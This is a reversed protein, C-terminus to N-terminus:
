FESEWYSSMILIRCSKCLCPQFENILEKNLYTSYGSINAPSQKSNQKVCISSIHVFIPHVSKAPGSQLSTLLHYGLPSSHSLPQVYQASLAVSVFTHIMSLKQCKFYSLCAAPLEATQIHVCMAQIFM